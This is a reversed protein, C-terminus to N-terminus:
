SDVASDTRCIAVQDWVELIVEGSCEQSFETLSVGENRAGLRFNQVSKADSIYRLIGFRSGVAVIRQDTESELNNTIASVLAISRSNIVYKGRILAFCNALSFGLAVLLTVGVLRRAICRHARRALVFASMVFIGPVISYQPFYRYNFNLPLMFIPVTLALCLLLVRNVLSRNQRVYVLILSLVFAVLAAVAFRGAFPGFGAVRSDPHGSEVVSMDSPMAMQNLQTPSDPNLATEFKFMSVFSEWRSMEVMWKPSGDWTNLVYEQQLLSPMPGVVVRWGVDALPFLCLCLSLASLFPLKRKIKRRLGNPVLLNRCTVMLLGLLISSVAFSIKLTPLLVLAVVSFLFSEVSIPRNQLLSDALRLAVLLLLLSPMLDQYGTTFQQLLLPFQVAICFALVRQFRLERSSLWERLWRVMLLTVVLNPLTLLNRGLSAKVAAMGLFHTGLGADIYDAFEARHQRFPNLGDALDTSLPVHHSNTDSSLDVVRFHIVGFIAVLITLSILSQVLKVVTDESQYFLCSQLLLVTNVFLLTFLFVSSWVALKEIEILYSLNCVAVILSILVLSNQEVHANLLRLRSLIEVYRRRTSTSQNRM